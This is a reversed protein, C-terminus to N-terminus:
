HCLVKRLAESEPFNLLAFDGWLERAARDYAKGAEVATDFHGLNHRIGDRTIRARFRQNHMPEVGRYGASSTAIKSNMRQGGRTANRLNSKQNDLGNRNRHDIDCPPFRLIQRHMLVTRKESDTRSAYWLEGPTRPHCKAHWKHKILEPYDEDDVLAFKGQTLPIKKM